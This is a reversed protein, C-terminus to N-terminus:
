KAAIAPRVNSLDYGGDDRVEVTASIKEGVRLADFDAQSKVPYEMIMAAMFNPIAAADITAVRDHTNLAVVKGSLQYQRARAGPQQNPRCAALVIFILLTSAISRV